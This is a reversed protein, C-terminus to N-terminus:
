MVDVLRDSTKNFLLIGSLLIMFMFVISYSFYIWSINGKGLFAYRFLEFLSSLPNVNILWQISKPVIALSYFIPCVFMLLRLSLQLLGLLDKYKTSLISFILGGGLAIGSITIIVPIIILLRVPNLQVQGVQWFYILVAFLLLLQIGFRILNLLLTSFPSILRPFYVKSYISSNNLFTYATDLFLESFLNWLTIGTLYYLFTPLGETSFGMVKKFVLVYTIVSLLPQLLVWFPGLLTQQYSSLFEKRVLSFLLDKYSYFEKFGVGAWTTNAKIEWDWQSHQKM